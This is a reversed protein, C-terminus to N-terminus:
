PAACRGLRWAVLEVQNISLVNPLTSRAQAYALLQPRHRQLAAVVANWAAGPAVNLHFHVEEGRTIRYTPGYRHYGSAKRQQEKHQMRAIHQRIQHPDTVLQGLHAAAARRRVLLNTDADTPFNIRFDGPFWPGDSADKYRWLGNGHRADIDAFPLSHIITTTPPAMCPHRGGDRHVVWIQFVVQMPASPQEDPGSGLHFRHAGVPVEAALSLRPDIKAQVLPKRFNAGLLFAITHGMQAAHHLFELARNSNGGHARKDPSSFPPNGILVIDQAPVHRLGLSARTCQLFDRRIYEPRMAQLAPDIEIGLRQRKPLLDFFAGTGASPEIFVYQRIESPGGLFEVLTAWLQSALQRPTNYQCWRTRRARIEDM